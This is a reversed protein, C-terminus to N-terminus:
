LPQQRTCLSQFYVIPVSVTVGCILESQFSYVLQHMDLQSARNYQVMQVWLIDMLIFLGLQNCLNGTSILGALYCALM